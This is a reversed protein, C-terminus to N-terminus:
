YSTTGFNKFQVMELSRSFIVWCHYLNYAEFKTYHYVNALVLGHM